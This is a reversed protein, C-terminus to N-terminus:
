PSGFAGAARLADMREQDYGLGRLVEDTHEGM